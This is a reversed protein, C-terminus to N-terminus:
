RYADPRPGKGRIAAFIWRKHTPRFGAQEYLRLAPGNRADVALLVRRLGRRAAERAARDLLSGALGKGQHEPRVGLYLVEAAEELPQDNVLICGAPAGAADAIWWGEPRFRGGAKHSAIIEEATRLGLLAPCDLSREYTALILEGLEAETFQGYRRLSIDDRPPRPPLSSPDLRMYILEAIFAYGWDAAAQRQTPGGSPMSLQVFHLGGDLAAGTARRVVEALASRDVGPAELPCHFLFATGGPHPVIM